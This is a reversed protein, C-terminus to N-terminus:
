LVGSEIRLKPLMSVITPSLDLGLIRLKEILNEEPTVLDAFREYDDEREIVSVKYIKTQDGRLVELTVTDGIAKPYLNINFQRGNEMPKGNLSLIIDGIELGAQDAPKDPIVDGLVVGWSQSLNLGKAISNNITQAHVGIEGRRVRGREKIQTYVNRVINSPAAFGLGESGGSQSIISTNIGVVKGDINVLPGGSNGPNIAADTQIYIMPDEPSLQRAVSSVVGMTVSNQLGMPSGFAFVLQGQKLDDSNALELHALGTVPVKLVALDTELDFGVLEATIHEGRPKLISKFKGQQEQQKNLIVEIKHAGEVVHANTVIYGNVDLVVGSGTSKSKSLLSSVSEDSPSSWGTSIINVVAPAVQDSLANFSNSIDALTPSIKKAQAFLTAVLM